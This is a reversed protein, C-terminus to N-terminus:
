GYTNVRLKQGSSVNLLQMGNSNLSQMGLHQQLTAERSAERTSPLGGQTM